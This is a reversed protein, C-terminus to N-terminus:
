SKVEGELMHSMRGDWNSKMPLQKSLYLKYLFKAGAKTLVVYFRTKGEYTQTREAFYRDRYSSSVQYGLVKGEYVKKILIGKAALRNQVQQINVGNLQRCFEHPTMGPTFQAAMTNCVGQLRDIEGGAHELKELAAQKAEVEDAWARAAIIPNTFDPLQFAPEITKSELEQWRKIIAMRAKINYGAILCITEDKPLVYQRQHRNQSDLYTDGFKPADLNLESLMKEVDRIVHDHRKGTLEAIERSSMTLKQSSLVSLTNSM